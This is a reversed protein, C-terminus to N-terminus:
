LADPGTGTLYKASQVRGTMVSRVQGLTRDFYLLTRARDSADPWDQDSESHMRDSLATQKLNSRQWRGSADPWTSRRMRDTRLISLQCMVTSISQPTYLYMEQVEKQARKSMQDASFCRELALFHLLELSPESKLIWTQFRENTVLSYCTHMWRRMLSTTTLHSNKSTVRPSRWWRSPKTTIPLKTIMRRLKHIVWSMKHATTLSEGRCLTLSNARLSYKIRAHILPSSCGQAPAGVLVLPSHRSESVESFYRRTGLV